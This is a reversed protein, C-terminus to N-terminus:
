QSHHPTQARLLMFDDHEKKMKGGRKVEPHWTVGTDNITIPYRGTGHKGCWDFDILKATEGDVMINPLRLDGFVFDEDHLVKVANRVHEYQKVSLTAHIDYATRGELFEMVVMKLSGCSGHTNGTDFGSYLLRPALGKSALLKHADTNYQQAFYHFHVIEHDPGPYSRIYPFFRTFKTDMDGLALSQYYEALSQLSSRLAVLVRAFRDLQADDAPDVDLQIWDTLPKVIIYDTFVAGLVKIHPGAIAILFCPCNSTALLKEIEKQSVYFAYSFSVQAAPDSHGTGIENKLEVVALFAIVEELSLTIVGDARASRAGNANKTTLKTALIKELITYIGVGRADETKYIDAASACLSAVDKYDEPSIELTIKNADTRFKDFVPHFLEIPFGHNKLPRGNLIHKEEHEQIALFNGVEASSSPPPSKLRASAELKQRQELRQGDSRSEHSHPRKKTDPLQVIVHLHEQTPADPFINKIM